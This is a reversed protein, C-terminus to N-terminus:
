IQDPRPRQRVPVLQYRHVFPPNAVLLYSSAVFLCFDCLCYDIMCACPSRGARPGCPWPSSSLFSIVSNSLSLWLRCLLSTADVKNLTVLGPRLAHEAPCPLHERALSLRGSARGLTIHAYLSGSLSCSTATTSNDFLTSSSDGTHPEALSSLAAM